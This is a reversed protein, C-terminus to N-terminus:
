VKDPCEDGDIADSNDPRKGNSATKACGDRDAQLMRRTVPTPPKPSGAFGLPTSDPEPDDAM